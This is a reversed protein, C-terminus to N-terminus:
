NVPNTLLQPENPQASLEEQGAEEPQGPEELVEPEEPMEFRSIIALVGFQPQDFYNLQELRIRRSDKLAPSCQPRM